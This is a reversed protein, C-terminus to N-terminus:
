RLLTVSGAREFRLLPGSGSLLRLELLYFYTGEPAPGHPTQGNWEQGWEGAFTQRGWRDWVQLRWAMVGALHYPRLQDNIGDGNPTFVNPLIGHCLHTEIWLTDCVQWRESPDCSTTDEACVIAPFRLNQAYCNPQACLRLSLPNHGSASATFHSGYYFDPSFPPGILTYSLLAFTDPDIITLTYCLSDGTIEVPWPSPVDRSLTPPRNQSLNQPLLWLTDMVDPPALACAPRNGGQIVWPYPQGPPLSGCAITFCVQVRLSDGASDQVQVTFPFPPQGVDIFYTGGNHATDRLTVFFCYPHQFTPAFPSDQTWPPSFLAIPYTPRSQIFLQLTDYPRHLEACSLSDRVEVILTLWQNLAECRPKFCVTAEWSLSGQSPTFTLSDVLPPIAQIYLTHQSPPPPDEIRVRLCVSSDPRLILTDPALITVSPAPNNPFPVLFSLSDQWTPYPPCTGQAEAFLYLRVPASFAECGGTYCVEGFLTDNRWLTSLSVQASPPVVQTQVTPPPTPPSAVLFFSACATNDLEVVFHGGQTPLAPPTLSGTLSRYPPPLVEVWITDHAETTGCPETKRGTLYLPLVRGTDACGLRGCISLLLPNTGSAQVSFSSPSFAYSLVAPPTLPAATDAITATFCFLNEAVMQLTDGHHPLAGFDHAVLPPPSPPRCPAVYFQMDRRTEGLFQGNRYELVAIAVVYLGPNPARLHLLGTIPDIQCIGNPGFPQSASYGPAYTVTQYPPPGMPNNPGVAPSGGQAPNVAGQGQTNVSHYAAVIQYVLSDGDADTASHDFYFDNGACLFFPPRRTFRPSNNCDARRAPPIRALYTIGMYLPEQLNTITANRCCRAWAVYYGDTQPPLTLYFRYVGEELCTGPRQLFCADVGAPDWPGYQTLYATTATYLTGDGKFVYVTIPNDYDAGQPDTCDRYLWLEFEYRHQAPDVCKYYLDAGAIHRALLESFFGLLLGRWM